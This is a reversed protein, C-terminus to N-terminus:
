HLLLRANIRHGNHWYDTVRTTFRYAVEDSIAMEVVVVPSDPDGEREITVSSVPGVKALAERIKEETVDADVGTILIKKM